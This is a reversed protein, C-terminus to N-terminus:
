RVLLGGLWSGTKIVIEDRVTGPAFRIHHIVPVTIHERQLVEFVRRRSGFLSRPLAIAHEPLYAHYHM